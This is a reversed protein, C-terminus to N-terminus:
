KNRRKPNAAKSQAEIYERLVPVADLLRTNTTYLVKYAAYIKSLGPDKLAEMSALVKGLRTQTKKLETYFEIVQLVIVKQPSRLYAQYDEVPKFAM